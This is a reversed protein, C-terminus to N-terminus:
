GSTIPQTAVVAIGGVLALVAIGLLSSRAARYEFRESVAAFFLAAAFLLTGLTFIDSYTNADEGAAFTAEAEHLLDDSEQDLELQYEPMSFPSPPVEAASSKWPDLAVWATYAVALEPRFRQRYFSALEKDGSVRADVFNEFVSLDALRYEHAEIQKESSTTRLASARSYDSSQIGDWLSAQYGAWATALAAMALILTSVVEFRRETRDPETREHDAM